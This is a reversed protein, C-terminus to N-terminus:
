MPSGTNNTNQSCAEPVTGTRINAAQNKAQTAPALFLLPLLRCLLRMQDRVGGFAGTTYPLPISSKARAQLADLSRRARFSLPPSAVPNKLGRKADAKSDVNWQM